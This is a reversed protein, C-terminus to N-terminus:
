LLKRVALEHRLQATSTFPVGQMGGQIAAEVNEQLDDIYLCNEVPTDVNAAAIRYSEPAPKQIGIEFSLTPRTFVDMIPNTDYIHQWHLPDTNSFLGLKIRGELERILEEMGPMPSFVDCWLDKFEEFDIALKFKQKVAEYFQQPQIQGTNYRKILDDEMLQRIIDQSPKEFDRFLRFLSRSFDIEVIVRGLDFILAEIRTM